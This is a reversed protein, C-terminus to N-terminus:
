RHHKRRFFYSEDIEVVIHQGGDDIGGLKVPETVFNTICEERIFNYWDICVSFSVSTSTLRGLVPMLM